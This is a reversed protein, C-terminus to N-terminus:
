LLIRDSEDYPFRVNREHCKWQQRGFLYGEKWHRNVNFELRACCCKCKHWEFYKCSLDNHNQNLFNINQLAILQSTTMKFTDLKFLTDTAPLTLSGNLSLTKALPSIFSDPCSSNCNHVSTGVNRFFPSM